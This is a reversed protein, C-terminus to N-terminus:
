DVLLLSLLLLSFDSFKTFSEKLLEEAASPWRVYHTAAGDSGHLFLDRDFLKLTELLSM